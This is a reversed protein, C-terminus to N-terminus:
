KEKIRCEKNAHSVCKSEPDLDQKIHYTATYWCETTSIKQPNTVM